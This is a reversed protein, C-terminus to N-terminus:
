HVTFIVILSIVQDVLDVLFFVNVLVVIGLDTFVFVVLVHFVVISPDLVINKSWGGSPGLNDYIQPLGGISLLLSLEGLIVFNNIVQILVVLHPHLQQM